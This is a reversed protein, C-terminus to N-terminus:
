IENKGGRGLDALGSPKILRAVCPLGSAMFAARSNGRVKERSEALFPRIDQPMLHWIPM